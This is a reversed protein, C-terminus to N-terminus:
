GIPHRCWSRDREDSTRGPTRADAECGRGLMRGGAGARVRAVSSPTVQAARGGPDGCTRRRLAGNLESAYGQDNESRTHRLHVYRGSLAATLLQTAQTVVTVPDRHASRGVSRGRPPVFFTGAWAHRRALSGRGASHARLSEFGWRESGYFARVGSRVPM